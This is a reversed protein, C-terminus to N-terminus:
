GFNHAAIDTAHPLRALDLEPTATPLGLFAFCARLTILQLLVDLVATAIEIHVNNLDVVEASKIAPRSGQSM